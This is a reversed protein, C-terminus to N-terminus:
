LGGGHGLDGGFTTTGYLNGATDQTLRAEPYLGDSGGTFTHLVTYVGSASLEWVTNLYFDAGYLNGNGDIIPRDMGGIGSYLVSYEGESTLKFVGEEAESGGVYGYLNGANDRALDGNGFTATSLVTLKKTSTNLKWIGLNSTFGYAYSGSLTVTQFYAGNLDSGDGAGWASTFDYLVSLVGKPTIKWISGFGKSGGEGALGYLDGNSAISLGLPWDAGEKSAKPFAALTSYTYTQASAACVSLFLFFLVVITRM